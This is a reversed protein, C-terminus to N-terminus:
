KMVERVPRHSSAIGNLSFAVIHDTLLDLDFFKQYADMGVLLRGIPRHYRYLLCQAVISFAHLHLTQLSTGAPFFQRLIALLGEFMPRIYSNVVETTADTPRGMERMMLEIQWDPRDPDIMESVMHRIFDRLRTEPPTEATWGFDPFASHQCCALSMVETYLRLKDGFHYHVAAINAGAASCIERVTTADFGKAAFIQGAADLLRQRTDDM